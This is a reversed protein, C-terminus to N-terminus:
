TNAQPNDERTHRRKCVGPWPCFGLERYKFCVVDNNNTADNFKMAPPSKTNSLQGGRTAERLRDWRCYNAVLPQPVNWSNPDLRGQARVRELAKVALPLCAEQWSFSEALTEIQWGFHFIAAPLSPNQLAFFSCLVSGYVNFARSWHATTTGYERLAATTKRIRITTSTIDLKTSDDDDPAAGLPPSLRVINKPDFKDHFIEKLYKEPVTGFRTRISDLALSMETPIDENFFNDEEAAEVARAVEARAKLVRAEAELKATEQTLLRERQQLLYIEKDIPDTPIPNTLPPDTRVAKNPDGEIEPAPRKSGSSM